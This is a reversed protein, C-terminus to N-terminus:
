ALTICVRVFTPPGADNVANYLRRILAANGLM